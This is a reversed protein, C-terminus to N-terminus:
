GNSSPPTKLRPLRARRDSWRRRSRRTGGSDMEFDKAFFKFGDKEVKLRHKGPDVSISISGKEGPRTIEIKGEENLVQVTADPQNVEVVLTGDKTQMKFVIGALIAVGFVAGGVIGM